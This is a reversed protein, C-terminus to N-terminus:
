LRTGVTLQDLAGSRARASSYGTSYVVAVKRTTIVVSSPVPLPSVRSSVLGQLRSGVRLVDLARARARASSYDASSVVVGFPCGVRTTFVVRLPVPLPSVWSCVLGQLASKVVLRDLARASVVHKIFM